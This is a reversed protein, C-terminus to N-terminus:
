CRNSLRPTARDPPTIPRVWLWARCRASAPRTATRTTALAKWSSLLVTPREELSPPPKARCKAHCSTKAVTTLMGLEGGVSQIIKHLSSISPTDAQGIVAHFRGTASPVGRSKRPPPALNQGPAKSCGILLRAWGRFGGTKGMVKVEIIAHLKSLPAAREGVKNSRVIRPSMGPGPPQPPHPASLSQRHDKHEAGGVAGRRLSLGSHGM